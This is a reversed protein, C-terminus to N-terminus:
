AVGTDRDTRIILYLLYPAGILTLTLGIPLEWPEAIRKAAYDAVLVLLAGCGAAAPFYAASAVRVLRRAIHPSILAVFAVAGAVSVVVASLLAAATVTAIQLSTTRVGLSAALEDGLQFTNLHRALVLILPALVALGGALLRIQPWTAQAVGGFVWSQVRHEIQLDDPPLHTLMSDMALGAAMSVAIGVLLIRAMSFRRRVGLIGLLAVVAMAGAFAAFPVEGASAGNVIAYVAAAAAGSNIGLIDPSALPNRSLTQFAAGCLGLAAGVLIGLLLRPIRIELLISRDLVSGSGRLADLVTGPSTAYVGYSLMLAFGVVILAFLAVTIVVPRLPSRLSLRGGATRLVLMRRSM